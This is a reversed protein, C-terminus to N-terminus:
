LFLFRVLDATFLHMTGVLGLVLLLSLGVILGIEAALLLSITARDCGIKFITDVEKQRLRLSLSFVLGLAGVTAGSVLLIIADLVNKIRFINQLLETIVTHPEFVQLVESKGLFRGQLLTEAKVDDPLTIVASIPYSGLDGHFHFSDLNEETIETFHYLKVSATVNSDSRQMVLSPDKIAAVDQHGHGLGQIVWTTKLDTFVALDDASHSRELVGAIKMKLPYIGALDFMNEPSSVLYDGVSLQLNEAVQAGIVCEGLRAFQRGRAVQLNRFEFYDLSTGVIPAGQAKFRVYLPVGIGLGSDDIRFVANMDILEPMESTFYLSNLALDLSSGKAGLLLPTTKARAMLQQESEVVLLQLALPLFTILSVCCVLILSKIRNYRIYRYALYLSHTV